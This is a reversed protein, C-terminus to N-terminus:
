DDSEILNRLGATRYRTHDARRQTVRRPKSKQRPDHATGQGILLEAHDIPVDDHLMDTELELRLDGVSVPVFAIHPNQPDGKVYISMKPRLSFFLEPDYLGTSNEPDLRPIYDPNKEGYENTRRSPQLLTGPKIANIMAAQREAETLVPAHTSDSSM